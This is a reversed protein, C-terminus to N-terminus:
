RSFPTCFIVYERGTITTTEFPSNVKALTYLDSLDDEREEHEAVQCEFDDLRVAIAEVHLELTGLQIHGILYATPDDDPGGPELDIEFKLDPRGRTAVPIRTTSM